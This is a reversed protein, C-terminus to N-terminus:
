SSISSILPAKFSIHRNCVIVARGISADGDLVEVPSGQIAYALLQGVELGHADRDDVKVGDELCGGAM